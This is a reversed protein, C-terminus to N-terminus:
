EHHNDNILLVEEQDDEDRIEVLVRVLWDDDGFDDNYQDDDTPLSAATRTRTRTITPVPSDLLLSSGQQTTQGAEVLADMMAQEAMALQHLSEEVSQSSLPHPEQLDREYEELTRGDQVTPAQFSSSTRTTSTSSLNEEPDVSDRGPDQGKIIDMRVPAEEGEGEEAVHVPLTPTSSKRIQGLNMVQKLSPSSRTAARNPPARSRPGTPSTFEPLLSGKGTEAARVLSGARGGGMQAPSDDKIVPLDATVVRRVPSLHPSVINSSKRFPNQPPVKPTTLSGATSLNLRALSPTSSPSKEVGNFPPPFTQTSGLSTVRPM